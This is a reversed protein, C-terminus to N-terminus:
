FFGMRMNDSSLRDNLKNILEDTILNIEKQSLFFKESSSINKEISDIRKTQESIKSALNNLQESKENIQSIGSSNETKHEMVSNDYYYRDKYLVFNQQNQNNYYHTHEESRNYDPFNESVLTKINKYVPNESVKQTFYSDDTFRINKIHSINKNNSIIDTDDSKETLYSIKSNFIFNEVGTLQFLQNEEENNLAIDTSLKRNINEAFSNNNFILNEFSPFKFFQKKEEDSLQINSNLKNSINEIFTKQENFKNINETNFVLNEIDSLKFFQNKEEDSLQINSKLKNSINEIFNKQENFRNINETNFVLNEVDSLKFFQNKEEDSLQINSKLKNSINEIFTKQENFRNINETNFVFNETGSLKFFQNKEEDSLQINSNIKNSINEIFAKQENFRNINETNFVLNEIDSLKLFQNKEEDSLQINSNIKNSINEIFAKQENFRNINETNFVFNEVDSLKFFQNKEEDSLQINSNIKNSINEIFNKQENFRNINETNFVFNEIDSLKFFQNKEEDSLQISSNLKKSINEIFNKQENFRNINEINFVLNEIDSLKFFQKKEEDSLRINSNLKNSINEIFTKQENFRNINETNFVLNEIDSLKFFQNKEEDSLQINSNLKNSINEIFTKQENFRNINETNFIFNETDSLKFFEFKEESTLETNSNLKNSINQFVTRINKLKENQFKSILEYNDSTNIYKHFETKLNMDDAYSMNNIFQNFKASNFIKDTFWKYDINFQNEIEARMNMDNIVDSYMAIKINEKNLIWNRFKIYNLNKISSIFKGYKDATMERLYESINNKIDLKELIDEKESEELSNIINILDKRSKAINFYFINELEKKVTNRYNEKMTENYSIINKRLIKIFKRFNEESSANLIFAIKDNVPVNMQNAMNIIHSPFVSSNVSKWIFQSDREKIEYINEIFQKKLKKTNDQYKESVIGSIASSFQSSNQTVAKNIMYFFPKNNVCNMHASFNKEHRNISGKKTITNKLLKIDNEISSCYQSIEEASTLSNLGAFLKKMHLYHRYNKQRLMDMYYDLSMQMNLSLVNSGSQRNKLLNAMKSILNLVSYVIRDTDTNEHFFSQNKFIIESNDYYSVIGREAATQYKSVIRTGFETDTYKKLSGSTRIKRM